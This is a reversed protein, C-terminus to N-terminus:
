DFDVAAQIARVRRWESFFRGAAKSRGTEAARALCGSLADVFSDWRFEKARRLGSACFGDRDELGSMFALADATEFPDEGSILRVTADGYAEPLSGHPTTVIPCGCAMAEILPVGFGEYFSPYVLARAGSYALALEEDDLDARILGVDGPCAERIAPEIKGAGGVCLVDFDRTKLMALARFVHEGNKYGKHQTRDGVFLFYPRALGFRDRFAAVEPEARPRFTAGDAGCHAVTVAAESLEPYFSLLDRRTNWSICLVNMAYAIATAKEAWIRPRMDFDFLEPIMDYVVLTAPTELPTTYYTSSFVDVDRADCVKQILASDAPADRGLYPAFPLREVGPIKPAGGRDLLLIEHEGKAALGELSKAWVRSIGGNARWVRGRGCGSLQFFVGDVLIKM